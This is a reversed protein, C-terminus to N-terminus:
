TLRLNETLEESSVIACIEDEMWTMGSEKKTARSEITAHLLCFGSTRLSSQPESLGM